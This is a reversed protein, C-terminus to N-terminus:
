HAEMFLMRDIFNCSDYYSSKSITLAVNANNIDGVLVICKM